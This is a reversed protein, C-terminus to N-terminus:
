WDRSVTPPLRVCRACAGAAPAAPFLCRYCPARADRNGCLVMVQSRCVSPTTVVRALQCAVFGFASCVIVSTELLPPRGFSRMPFFRSRSSVRLYFSITGTRRLGRIRRIHAPDRLRRRCGVAHVSYRRQRQLRAATAYHPSSLFLPAAASTLAAAAASPLLGMPFNVNQAAIRASSM